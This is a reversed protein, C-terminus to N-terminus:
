ERAGFFSWCRTLLRQTPPHTSRRHDCGEWKPRLTVIAPVSCADLLARVDAVPNLNKLFDLRLEVIDAGGAEAEKIETKMGDVDPATVSTTIFASCLPRGDDRRASKDRKGVV